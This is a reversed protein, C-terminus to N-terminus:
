RVMALADNLFAASRHRLAAIRDQVAADMPETLLRDYASADQDESVMHRGAGLARMLDRVKHFRYPTPATLFPRRNLLAFVCGHFFNTVVGEAGAMLTAFEEPGATIRQEHAWDNRYGISVIPMRRADAWRRVHGSLWDPFNHGYLALYGGQGDKMTGSQMPPFQLCPDLVLAPDCGLAARVIARSNEDRVSVAAFKRLQGAWHDPLGESADHNGFSAAYSLFPARLGAGYFIPSEGYWPHRQNWVEDSGVIIADFDDMREPQDIPFPRSLPLEEFAALFKRTKEAYAPFDTRQAPQPLTPHLACRWEARQIAPSHHDLLVANTGMARLGEVLCRAQWYSGYNICRHFTLVGCSRGRAGAGGDTLPAAAMTRM